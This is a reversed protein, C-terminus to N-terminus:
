SGAGADSNSETLWPTFMAEGAVSDCDIHDPGNQCGWWNNRADVPVDDSVEDPNEASMADLGLAATNGHINNQTFVTGPVDGEVLGGVTNDTIENAELLNGTSAAAFADDIVVGTDSGAITNHELVAHSTGSLALGRTNADLVNGVVHTGSRRDHVGADQNEHVTNAEVTVGHANWLHVGDRHNNAAENDHVEAGGTLWMRIGEANGVATNATVGGGNSSQVAIGADTNDTAENRTVIPGTSDYVLIGHGRNREATNNEVVVTQLPWALLGDGGNEIALNDNVTITDGPTLTLSPWIQLGTEANNMVKNEAFTTGDEVWTAEIGIWRNHEATNGEFPVDIPQHTKIGAGDNFRVTNNSVTTTGAVTTGRVHHGASPDEHRTSGGWPNDPKYAEIGHIANQEATNAQLTTNMSMSVHLGTEGQHNATNNSVIGDEVFWALVGHRDGSTITNNEVVIDVSQRVYIAGDLMWSFAGRAGTVTNDVVRLGETFQTAILRRGNTDTNNRVTIDEGEAWISTRSLDALENDQVVLGRVDGDPTCVFYGGDSATNAEVLVGDLAHLRIACGEVANATSEVAFFTSQSVRTLNEVQDAHIGEAGDGPDIVAIDDIAVHATTGQIFIAAGTQESAGTFCWGEILYPDAETGDGAVVGSGPEQLDEDSEIVIPDHAVRDGCNSASSAAVDNGSGTTTALGPDETREGPLWPAMEDEQVSSGGTAQPDTPLASPMVALGNAPAKDTHPTRVYGFPNEPPDWSLPRQSTSQVSPDVRGPFSLEETATSTETPPLGLDPLLPLLTTGAPGAAPNPSTRWPQYAADGRLDECDEHTPGDPCAWWNWRADVTEDTDLVDLGVTDANYELNNDRLVTDQTAQFVRVAATGSGEIHNAELRTNATLGPAGSVLVGAGAQRDWVGPIPAGGNDAIHNHRAITDVGEIRLGNFANEVLTNAQVLTSASGFVHLGLMNGGATNGTVVTAQSWVVAIGTVPQNTVTNQSITTARTDSVVIGHRQNDTVNNTRVEVNVTGEVRIGHGFTTVTNNIVQANDGQVQIGFGQWAPTGHLTNDQIVLEDSSSLSPVFIGRYSDQITNNEIIAGSSSRLSIGVGLPTRSHPDIHDITTDQVTTHLSGRVMVSKHLATVSSDTVETGVSDVIQIGQVGGDVDVGSVIVDIGDAVIVQGAVVGTIKQGVVDEVYVLPRGNVTNGEVHHTTTGVSGADVVLGTVFTNGVIRAERADELLVDQLYGGVGNDQITANATSQIAIGTSSFEDPLDHPKLLNGTAMVDQSDRIVFGQKAGDVLNNVLTIRQSDSLIRVAHHPIDQLTNNELTTDSTSTLVIGPGHGAITNNAVTADTSGELHISGPLGGISALRNDEVTVAQSSSVRIGTERYDELHFGAIRLGQVGDAHIGNEEEDGDLVVEGETILTLDDVGSITVSELYTGDCVVVTDGPNAADVGAQITAHNADPCTTGDDDVLIEAQEALPAGAGASALGSIALAAFLYLYLLSPVSRTLSM